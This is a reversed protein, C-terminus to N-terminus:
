TSIGGGSLRAMHRRTSVVPWIFQVWVSTLSQGTLLQQPPQRQMGFRLWRMERRSTPAPGACYPASDSSRALHFRVSLGACRNAYIIATLTPELKPVPKGDDLENAISLAITYRKIAKAHDGSKFHANGELRVKECRARDEESMLALSVAPLFVCCSRCNKPVHVM